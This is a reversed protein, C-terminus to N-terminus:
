RKVRRARRLRKAANRQKRLDRLERAEELEALTPGMSIIPQRYLFTPVYPVHFGMPEPAVPPPPMPTSFRLSWPEMAKWQELTAEAYHGPKLWPCMRVPIHAGADLLERELREVVDPAVLLGPSVPEVSEMAAKLQEFTFEYPETHVAFTDTM